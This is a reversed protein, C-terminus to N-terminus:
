WRYPITEAHADLRESELPDHALTACNALTSPGEAIGQFGYWVGPPIRVLGYHDSGVILEQLKGRTPSDPRDDYIVLKIRGVPVAFNQIMERHRKWAKIAGPLVQSFYIEGFGEFHPADARLMHLVAGREDRIQRLPHIVVGAIAPTSTLVEGM